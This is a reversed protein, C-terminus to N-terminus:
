FKEQWFTQQDPTPELDGDFATSSFWKPGYTEMVTTGYVPIKIQGSRYQVQYTWIPHGDRVSRTFKYGTIQGLRKLSRVVVVEGIEYKPKGYCTM